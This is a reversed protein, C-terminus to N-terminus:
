SVRFGAVLVDDIQRNAGKWNELTQDLITQQKTRVICSITTIRSIVINM